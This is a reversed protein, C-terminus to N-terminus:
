VGDPFAMSVTRKKALQKLESTYPDKPADRRVSTMYAEQRRQAAQQEQWFSLHQACVDGVAARRGCPKGAKTTATCKKRGDEVMSCCQAVVDAQYKALLQTYDLPYDATVRALTRQVAEAALLEAVEHAHRSGSLLDELARLFPSSEKAARSM